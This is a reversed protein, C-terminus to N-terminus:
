KRALGIEPKSNMMLSRVGANRRLFTKTKGVISVNCSEKCSRIAFGAKPAFMNEKTM